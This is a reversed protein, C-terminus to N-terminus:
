DRLQSNMEALSIKREPNGKEANGIMQWNKDKGYGLFFYSDSKAIWNLQELKQPALTTRQKLVAEEMTFMKTQAFSALSFCSLFLIFLKKM